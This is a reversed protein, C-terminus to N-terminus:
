HVTGRPDVARTTAGAGGGGDWWGQACVQIRIRGRLAEGMASLQDYGDQLVQPLLCQLHHAARRVMLGATCPACSRTRAGAHAPDPLIPQARWLRAAHVADRRPRPPQRAGARVPSRPLAGHPSARTLAGM